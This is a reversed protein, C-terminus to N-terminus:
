GQKDGPVTGITDFLEDTADTSRNATGEEEHFLEVSRQLERERRTAHNIQEMLCLYAGRFGIEPNNVFERRIWERVTDDDHASLDIMGQDTEVRQWMTALLEVISAKIQEFEEGTLEEGEKAKIDRLVGEMWSELELRYEIEIGYWEGTDTLADGNADISATIVDREAQQVDAKLSELRDELDNLTAWQEFQEDDLTGDRYLEKAQSESLDKLRLLPVRDNEDPQQTESM